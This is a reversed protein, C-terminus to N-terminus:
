VVDRPGRPGGRAARLEALVTPGDYLADGRELEDLAAELDPDDVGEPDDDPDDDPPNM